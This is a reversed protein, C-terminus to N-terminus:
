SYYGCAFLWMDHEGSNYGPFFTGDDNKGSKEAMGNGDDFIAQSTAYEQLFIQLEETVPYVGDANCYSGYKNKIFDNYDKNGVECRVFGDLFGSKSNTIIVENDKSIKAYLLEGYGTIEDYFHYYGDGGDEKKWLKFMDTDLLRNESDLYAVYKFTKGEPVTQQVFEEKPVQVDKKIEEGGTFEGEWQLIFDINVPFPNNNM